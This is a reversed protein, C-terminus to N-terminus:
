AKDATEIRKLQDLVEGLMAQWPAAALELAQWSASKDLVSYAPRKAPTPYESTAIPQIPITRELLGRALAQAQIECAFEYWTAEGADTWHYVGTLAPQEALRWLARALGHAATPTGRQDSVVRLADRTRLLRLMTNLFNQGEAAYLWATRVIASRTAAQQLLIQEGALKSAGYVSTPNPSATPLYPTSASGDFVFDTSVHLIRVDDRTLQVLNRVGTENVAFAKDRESEALDVKTWAACNIILEPGTKAIVQQLQKRDSIDCVASAYSSVKTNYPAQAVVLRGLQGGAGLVLVRMFHKRSQNSRFAPM